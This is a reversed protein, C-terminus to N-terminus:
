KGIKVSGCIHTPTTIVSNEGIYCNHSIHVKANVKVGSKLITDDIAGKHINCNAGIHVNNEIIVGGFHKLLKRSGDKLTSPNFGDEGITTGTSVTCNEGIKTGSKLVVNHHITTNNGITVNPEIVCGYGIKVNTGIKAHESIFSHKKYREINTSISLGKDNSDNSYFNELITFFANTPKEIHIVNTFCNYIEESPDTIILQIKKGEFNDKYDKFDYLTSIFTMTQPKYNFLTSFGMIVEEQ